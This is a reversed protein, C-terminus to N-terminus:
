RAEVYKIRLGELLEDLDARSLWQGNRMVGVIRQTNAIDELPNADLLLLDARKGVAVSGESDEKGMFRAANITAARLVYAPSLGDDVMAAMELHFSRGPVINGTGADTGVLFGVKSGPLLQLLKVNFEHSTRLLDSPGRQMVREHRNRIGARINPGVYELDRLVQDPILEVHTRVRRRNYTSILWTGRTALTDVNEKILSVEVGSYMRELYRSYESHSPTTVGRERMEQVIAASEPSSEATVGRMHALASLSHESAEVAPSNELLHAYTRLGLVKSRDLVYNFLEPDMPGGMLKVGDIGLEQLTHLADDAEARNTVSISGGYHPEAGEIKPGTIFISPGLLDGSEIDSRWKLVSATIDSGMDHVATIGFALYLPLLDKNEELMEPPNRGNQFKDIRFHVHMDWLGPVLYRGKGSVSRGAPHPERRHETVSKIRDGEVHVDRHELIQGNEVDVVNVDSFVIGAAEVPQNAFLLYIVILWARITLAM